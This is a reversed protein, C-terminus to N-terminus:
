QKNITIITLKYNFIYEIILTQFPITIINKQSQAISQKSPFPFFHPSKQIQIPFSKSINSNKTLIAGNSISM